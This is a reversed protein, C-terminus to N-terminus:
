AEAERAVRPSIWLAHRHRYRSWWIRTVRQRRASLIQRRLRGTLYSVVTTDLYIAPRPDNDRESEESIFLAIRALSHTSLAEMAGIRRLELM